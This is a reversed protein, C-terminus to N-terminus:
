TTQDNFLTPSPDQALISAAKDCIFCQCTITGQQTINSKCLVMHVTDVYHINVLLISISPSM